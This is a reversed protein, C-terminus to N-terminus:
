SCPKTQFSLRISDNCYQACEHLVAFTVFICGAPRCTLMGFWINRAHNPKSLYVLQIMVTRNVNMYFLSHLLFELILIPKCFKCIASNVVASGTQWEKQSKIKGSTPLLVYYLFVNNINTNEQFHPSSTTQCSTQQPVSTNLKTHLNFDISFNYWKNQIPIPMASVTASQRFPLGAQVNSLGLKSGFLGARCDQSIETYWYM